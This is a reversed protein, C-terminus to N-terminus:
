EFLVEVAALRLEADLRHLRESLSEDVRLSGDPTSVVIGSDIDSETFRLGGSFSRSASDGALVQRVLAIDAPNLHVVLADPAHPAPKWGALDPRSAPTPLNSVQGVARRLLRVLAATYRGPNRDRLQRIEGAAEELVSNLESWRHRAIRARADLRAIQLSREVKRELNARTQGIAAQAEAEARRRADAVIDEAERQRAQMTAAGNQQAIEHLRQCLVAVPDPAAEARSTTMARSPEVQAADASVAKEPSQLPIVSSM